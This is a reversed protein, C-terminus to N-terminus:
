GPRRGDRIAELVLGIVWNVGTAADASDLAWGSVLRRYTAVGWLADIMAAALRQDAASWGEAQERVSDLLNATRKEDLASLVEDTPRPQVSSTFTSLYSFLSRVHEPIEDLGLREVTVDADAVLRALVAERLARETSFHRYVTREHVGARAAVARITLSRWDWSSLEHVLEVGATVIRESTREAQERRLPSDYRRATTM